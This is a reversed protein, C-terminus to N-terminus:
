AIPPRILSDFIPNQYLDNIYLPTNISLKPLCLSSTGAIMAVSTSVSHCCHEYLDVTEFPHDDHAHSVITGNHKLIDIHHIDDHIHSVPTDIHVDYASVASQM